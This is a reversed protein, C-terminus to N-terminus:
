LYEIQHQVLNRELIDEAEALVTRLTQELLGAASAIAVVGITSRQWLEQHDFEAISINHKRLRDKLSRIVMRKEKLSHADPIHIELTLLGINMSLSLGLSFSHPLIGNVIIQGARIAVPSIRM